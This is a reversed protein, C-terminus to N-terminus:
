APPGQPARVPVGGRGDGQSSVHFSFFFHFCLLPREVAGLYKRLFTLESFCVLSNGLLLNEVFSPPLQLLPHLATESSCSSILEQCPPLREKPSSEVRHTPQNESIFLNEQVASTIPHHHPHPDQHFSIM